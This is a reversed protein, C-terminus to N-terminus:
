IKYGGGPVPPDNNEEADLAEEPEPSRAGYKITFIVLGAARLMARAEPTDWIYIPDGSKLIVILIPGAASSVAIVILVDSPDFPGSSGPVSIQNASM